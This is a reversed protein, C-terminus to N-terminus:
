EALIKGNNCLEQNINSLITMICS